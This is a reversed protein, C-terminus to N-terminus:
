GEAELWWVQHLKELWGAFCIDGQYWGLGRKATGRSSQAPSVGEGEHCPRSELQQINKIKGDEPANPWREKLMLTDSVKHLFAPDQEQARPPNKDGLFANIGEKKGCFTGISVTVRCGQRRGGLRQNGTFRIQLRQESTSANTQMPSNNM